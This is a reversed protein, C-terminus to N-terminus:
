QCYYAMAALIRHSLPAIQETTFVPPAVENIPPELSLMAAEEVANTMQPEPKWEDSIRSIRSLHKQLTQDPESDDAMLGRVLLWYDYICADHVLSELIEEREDLTGLIMTLPGGEVYKEDLAYTEQQADEVVTIWFENDPRVWYDKRIILRDYRDKIFDTRQYLLERREDKDPIFVAGILGGAKPNNSRFWFNVPDPEVFRKYALPMVDLATHSEVILGLMRVLEAKNNEKRLQEIERHLQSDKILLQTYNDIELGENCMRTVYRDLNLNPDIM